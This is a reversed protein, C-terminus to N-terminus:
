ESKSVRLAMETDLGVSESRKIYMWIWMEIEFIGSPGECEDPYFFEFLWTVWANTMLLYWVTWMPPSYGAGEVTLAKEGIRCKNGFRLMCLNMDNRSDDNWTMSRWTTGFYRDPEMGKENIAAHQAIELCVPKEYFIMLWQLLWILIVKKCCEDGCVKMGKRQFYEGNMKRGYCMTAIMGSCLCSHGLWVWWKKIWKLDCFLWKWMLIFWLLVEPGM